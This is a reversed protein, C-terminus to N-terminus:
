ARIDVSAGIQVWQYLFTMAPLPLHVCGHSGDAKYQASGYPFQQWSSDHFGYTPADFPIWYKVHYQDGNLQTLVSNRDRGEIKYHGTPTQTYQGSMGTTVATSYATHTGQCLWAHQSAISVLVLQDATNQACHNVPPKPRPAAPTTSPADAQVARGGTDHSTPTAPASRRQAGVSCGAVCLAAVLAAASLRRSV